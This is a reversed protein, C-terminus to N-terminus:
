DSTPSPADGSRDPRAMLVGVALAVAAGALLVWQGYTRELTLNLGPIKPNFDDDANSADILAWVTAAATVVTIALVTRRPRTAQEVMRFAFFVIVLGCVLTIVGNNPSDIGDINLSRRLGHVIHWPLLSGLTVLAGAVLLLRAQLRQM